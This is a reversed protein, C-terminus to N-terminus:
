SRISSPPGCDSVFCSILESKLFRKIADLIELCNKATLRRRNEYIWAKTEMIKDCIVGAMEHGMHVDSIKDLNEDLKELEYVLEYDFQKCREAEIPDLEIHNNIFGCVFHEPMKDLITEYLTGTILDKAFVELLGEEDV